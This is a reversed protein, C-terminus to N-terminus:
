PQTQAQDDEGVRALEAETLQPQGEIEGWYLDKEIEMQVVPLTGSQLKGYRKEVASWPVLRLKLTAGKETNAVSLIRRNHMALVHAVGDGKGVSKGDAGTMNTLYFKMLFHPYPAGRVPANSIDTVVGSVMSAGVENGAGAAAAPGAADSGGTPARGAALALERIEPLLDRKLFADLRAKRTEIDVKGGTWPRGGDRTKWTAAGHAVWADRGEVVAVRVGKGAPGLGHSGIGYRLHLEAEKVTRGGLGSVDFTMLVWRRKGVAGGAVPRLRAGEANISTAEWTVPRDPGDEAIASWYGYGAGPLSIEQKAGNDFTVSIKPLYPADRRM